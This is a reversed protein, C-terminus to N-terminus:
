HSDQSIIPDDDSTATTVSSSRSITSRSLCRFYTHHFSVQLRLRSGSKSNHLPEKETVVVESQCPPSSSNIRPGEAWQRSSPCSLPLTYM